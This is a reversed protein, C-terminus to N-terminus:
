GLEDDPPPPLEDDPPEEPLDEGTVLALLGAEDLLDVPRVTVGAAVHHFGASVREVPVGALRSWGLRYAALQVAAAALEAGSPPAGTKWDVVEFGGEADGFVADIRGRLTLPGLPTEFPVEVEVPQRDAWGSALFAEQLASLASDPAAGEDGSGPLEDLDLLRSAGFREELWAHFATGRRALPAPASPMPRRLRRALGAPDRRLAVLESVSLHSPLPVEVSPRATRRRERLLLDADRVWQEVVPDATGLAADPDLPHAASGAVLEAAAALARRRPASLPDAPWVGVPWEELAPNTAGEEPREAWAVVTGAGATCARRVTDLLVSPGNPRVGERWWSGSCVLLHKARTVAVYGLRIEEGEGFGKWEEVYDELAARVAAQDGSGPVPLRLQPLEARDTTRLDVPVAGPDKVWSDATDTRAPFQDATMGPVAVVDWELGKASHGTLLQISEPDVAVEGPELGREREEADRLYGLFAPLSPLEALETFEAAVAHLADLHARAAGPSVGPASALETELGLTRAVEDVLDPLADGLRGRLQALEAALQRLRRYAVTSYASPDGLDDLAEVISGRESPRAAPDDDDERASRRSRVLARARSELAALDRPGIRWRAGTLLRGLADGAAPDVLVTLTAVVDSVEPVELLGGLGVVTVPLGRARLAAAIGPLQRRTRVLVATTPPRGDPRPPLAPDEGRWCAALRDALAETEEAVTAYLGATVLGRGATPAPTLDPLPVDPAPLLGAVANAVRLVAADNRWSTALTLRRAERGRVGPFTRAFREITGASAGRWGYISQRPDGVALVAHGSARGFLAELMRLQGVSTDQYEDLLVVQWRARERRGVEPATVAVKAALAVQDSHDIAGAARKRAEFAAVLPLLAVRARQRALMELVPAYPGRKRPADPYGAIRAELQATWERLREPAIDHEGLEGALALVDEVTTLPTLPVDDMDGTWGSVVAAAQGWCMAPGLVGAGPEVGIRLGHESVLSAAYGHYTSVTPVAVALRERLQPDTEPHRALAALRIRIRENLEGAAKRTFTLGLIADPAVLENAVLWCVRAAMTETKGSGAGAVVVLPRDAPASVVGAQEDSPAHALGCRRAVEAPTLLRRPREPEPAAGFLADDDDFSLQEEPPAPTRRTM